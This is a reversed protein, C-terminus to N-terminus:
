RGQRRGDAPHHPQEEPDARLRPVEPHGPQRDPPLAPWGQLPRHTTSSWGSAATSRSRAAHRGAVAGPLHLDPGAGSMRELIKHELYEPHRDLCPVLSEVVEKVAQHFEPEAPNKAVLRDMFGAVTQTVTM